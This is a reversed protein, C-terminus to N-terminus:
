DGSYPEPHIILEANALKLSVQSEIEDCLNHADILNMDPKLYLVMQVLKKPGSKSTKISKIGKLGKFSFDQVISEILDKDEKPLSGDLLNNASDKVLKIGTNLVIHGVILALIPDLISLGTIKVLVLGVLVALSSYIDANLHQADTYLAMSDTKKAVKTLYTSVITNLIVSFAMVAIAPATEIEGYDGLIIKKIAIYFIFIATFVILWAEIFGALDEYKGHGFPHHEDAPESSKSVSFFAIFSALLDTLSHIAESIVSVSGSLAGVILKLLILFSNSLISVFAALKKRVILNM